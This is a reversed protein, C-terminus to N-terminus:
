IKLHKRVALFSAVVGLLIGGGLLMFFITSFHNVFYAVLYLGGYVGITQNRMWITLPYLLVLASLAAIIGSILGEVLFPGRVYNDGAGVLKMLAIEDKSIYIALSITNFTVVLSIFILVLTITWGIKKSVDIIRVLKDIINKKYSVQDIITEGTTSLAQDGELFKAIAAYHAPDRATVNLRAGFPNGVEDLSQLILDNDRNREKFDALEEERSRSEVAKVEPLAQLSQKIAAVEVEAAASKFSISIDVKNKINELSSDLLAGGLYLGGIVFLTATITVISALAVVPTRWFNVFGSRFVRKVNTWWM